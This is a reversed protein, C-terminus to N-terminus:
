THPAIPLQAEKPLFLEQTPSVSIPSPFVFAHDIPPSSSSVVSASYKSTLVVM